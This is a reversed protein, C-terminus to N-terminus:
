NQYNLWILENFSATVRRDEPTMRAAQQYNITQPRNDQAVRAGVDVSVCFRVDLRTVCMCVCEVPSETTM